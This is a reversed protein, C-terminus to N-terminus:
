ASASGDPARAARVNELLQFLLGLNVVTAFAAGAAWNRRSKLSVVGTATDAPAGEESTGTKYPQIELPLHAGDTRISAVPEELTAWTDRGLLPPDTELM